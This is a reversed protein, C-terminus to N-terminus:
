LLSTPKKLYLIKKEIKKKIKGPSPNSGTVEFTAPGMFLRNGIANEAMLGLQIHKQPFIQLSSVV